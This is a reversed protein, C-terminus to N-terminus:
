RRYHNLQVRWYPMEFGREGNNEPWAPFVLVENGEPDFQCHGSGDEFMGCEAPLHQDRFEQWETNAPGTTGFGAAWIVLAIMVETM